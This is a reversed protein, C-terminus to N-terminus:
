RFFLIGGFIISGHAIIYRGGGAEVAASYTVATVVIGFACVLGGILMNRVAVARLAARNQAVILEELNSARLLVETDSAPPPAPARDDAYRARRSSDTPVPLLPTTGDWSRLHRFSPVRLARGCSCSVSTGASAETVAVHNGCECVLPYDM